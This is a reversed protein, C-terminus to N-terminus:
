ICLIQEKKTMNRNLLEKINRKEQKLRQISQRVSKIEDKDNRKIADDLMMQWLFLSENYEDEDFNPVSNFEDSENIYEPEVLALCIMENMYTRKSSNM